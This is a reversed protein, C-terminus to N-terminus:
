IIFRHRYYGSESMYIHYRTFPIRLFWQDQQCTGHCMSTQRRVVVVFHCYFLQCQQPYVPDFCSEIGQSSVEKLTVVKLIIRRCSNEQFWMLVVVFRQIEGSEEYEDEEQREEKDDKELPSVTGSLDHIDM